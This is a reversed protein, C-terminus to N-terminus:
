AAKSEAIQRTELETLNPDVYFSEDQVVKVGINTLTAQPLVFIPEKDDLHTGRPTRSATIIKDKDIEEITRIFTSGWVRNKLAELVAKWNWRRNLLALKPTGTRFGITGSGFEISKRKGFEEPHAEAWMQVLDTKEALSSDIAELNSTYRERVAQLEADMQATIRRENNKLTAIDNVLCEVDHRTIGEASLIPKKIRTKKM